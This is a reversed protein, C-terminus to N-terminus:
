LAIEADSMALDDSMVTRTFPRLITRGAEAASAALEGGAGVADEVLTLEVGLDVASLATALCTDALSFGILFVEAGWAARLEAAFDGDAFASLSRRLFVPETILPRLGEIPAGFLGGGFSAGDALRLQTHVVRWGSARAHELVKICASAVRDAAEAYHPRGPVVFERQLDLCILWREPRPTRRSSNIVSTVYM